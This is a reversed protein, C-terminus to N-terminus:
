LVSETETVLNIFIQKLAVRHRRSFKFQLYVVTVSLQKWGFEMTCPGTCALVGHLHRRAQPRRYAGGVLRLHTGYRPVSNGIYRIVNCHEILASVPTIKEKTPVM